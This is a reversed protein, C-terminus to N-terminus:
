ASQALQVAQDVDVSVLRSVGAEHMTVGMLQQAIEMTIKNHTIFLFQVDKSMQLLLESFRGVNTDDLPADVEDLICFPAPNLKFIAFVLTVATLAKEGGSLLHITSNRKGPPQAMITVGTELLDDGTMELYAHGGGFLIPFMSKLNNNLDDFTEKFRTRTERDIKRIANELTALADALDQNQRDLYEKRESLQKYEDIAALNIPGLRHIKKEIDAIREQWADRDANEEMTALIDEVKQGGAQIQEVITELRVRTEQAQMRVTELETRYEQVKQEAASRKQDSNRIATDFDQVHKRAEALLKEARVKGTLKVALGQELDVLPQKSSEMENNLEAVRGNQNSLQLDIRQIAQELSARQSSIAELQLAIEHSQEHTVQWQSRANELLSRHQGRLTNLQERQEALKDRDTRTRQLRQDISETEQGDLELQTDIDELEITLQLKRKETQELRAKIGAQRTQLGTLEQLAPHLSNQFTNSNQEATNLTESVAALRSTLAQIDEALLAEQGKLATIQQERHLVGQEQNGGKNVRIWDRGLWIGDKCIVSEQEHLEAHIKLAAALTDAIYIGALCFDLALESRVKSQLTAFRPSFGGQPRFADRAIINFNGNTLQGLNGFVGKLDDVVIDQLRYDLVMELALTWEPEVALKQMLRPANQLKASKLWDSVSEHNSGRTHTQLAELSAVTGAIKQQTSRKGALEENLKHIQQRCGQIDAQQQELEQRKQKITTETTAILEKLQLLEAQVDGGDMEKLEQELMSKRKGADAINAALHELRTSDVEIQRSFNAMTENCSDWEMQWSQMATEAQNLADYAKNSESRSGQLRPQLSGAEEALSTLRSKDHNQQALIAAVSDQLKELEERIANQRERAHQIKQEINAIEGGIQYYGSQSQNFAANAAVLQDRLTEIRAEIARVEAIGQEVRTEEKRVLENKLNAQQQLDRWNIALLEAKTKREEQKLVQYREAAKAQRNLTNLQKNLEERIDNLRDLNDKTHRMRNETERRRERYKSIGAAEEIFIRLEEPKAEILRSIVGQEIIAYSRPGLGTGLFIAQIDRRRCRTGNLLYTSVGERTMTRKISIENYSAYQGGLRGDSNDFELEVSAQGVPQRTSSGNFIVDTLADGRLHKASSEGMVWTVADIINSKGCGNPGVIGVLNSPVIVTTPDVFSKFGSLKIRTLRM